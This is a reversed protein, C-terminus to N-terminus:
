SSIEKEFLHITGFLISIIPNSAQETRIIASEYMQLVKIKTIWDRSGRIASSIVM